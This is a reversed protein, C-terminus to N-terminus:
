LAGSPGVMPWAMAIEPAAALGLLPQAVVLAM